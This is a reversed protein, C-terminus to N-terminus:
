RHYPRESVDFEYDKGMKGVLQDRIWQRVRPRRDADLWGRRTIEKVMWRKKSQKTLVWGLGADYAARWFAFYCLFFIRAIQRPLVAFLVIQAALLTLNVMDLHSKPYAPHFLATLVDHTTPVRFVPSKKASLRMHIPTVQRRRQTDQGVRCGRRRTCCRCTPKQADAQSAQCQQGHHRSPPPTPRPRSKRGCRVLWDCGFLEAQTRNDRPYRRDGEMVGAKYKFAQITNPRLWRDPHKPSSQRVVPKKGTGHPMSQCAIDTPSCRGINTTPPPPPCLIEM